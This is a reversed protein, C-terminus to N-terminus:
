SDIAESSVVEVLREMRQHEYSVQRLAVRLEFMAILMGVLMSTVGVVFLVISIIQFRETWQSLGISLSSALMCIVCGVLCVLTNRILRARGLMYHAQQELGQSRWRVLAQESESDPRPHTMTQLQEHHFQRLRAVINSLRAYMAMCLLGCASIMVVPALLQQILQAYNGDTHSM